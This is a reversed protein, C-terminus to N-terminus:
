RPLVRIDVKFEGNSPCVGNIGLALFLTGERDSVKEHSDGVLFLNGNKGIRAVLAGTAIGPFQQGWQPNGGPSVPGGWNQLFVSGTARIALRDGRGVRIGTDCWSVPTNQGTVAVTKTTEEPSSVFVCRVDKVPIALKGYQTEVAFSKVQLEGRASFHRTVVEDLDGVYEEAEGQDDLAASLEIARSRIEPDPSAAATALEPAVWFGLASLERTAKERAAVDAAGLDRIMAEVRRKFDPDSLKGFRVEMVEAAPVTLLGYPTKLPYQALDIKGAVRTGDKLVFLPQTRPKHTAPSLDRTSRSTIVGEEEEAVLECDMVVPPAGCKIGEAWVPVGSLLFALAFTGCLKRNM